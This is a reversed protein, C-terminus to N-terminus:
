QWEKNHFDIYLNIINYHFNESHCTTLTTTYHYPLCSPLHARTRNEAIFKKPYKQLLIPASFNVVQTSVKEHKSGSKLTFQHIKRSKKFALKYVLVNITMIRAYAFVRSLKCNCGSPAKWWFVQAQSCARRKPYYHHSTVRTLVLTSIASSLVRSHSSPTRECNISLLSWCWLRCRRSYTLQFVSNAGNWVEDSKNCRM